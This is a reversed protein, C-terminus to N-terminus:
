NSNRVRNIESLELVELSYLTLLIGKATVYFIILLTKTKHYPNLSITFFTQKMMEDKKHAYIYHRILLNQYTYTYSNSFNFLLLTLHFHYWEPESKERLSRIHTIVNKLCSNSFMELVFQSRNDAVTTEPFGFRGLVIYHVNRM